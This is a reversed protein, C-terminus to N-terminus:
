PADTRPRGCRSSPRCVISSLRHVVSSPHHVIAVRTTGDDDDSETSCSCGPQCRSCGSIPHIFPLPNGSGGVAHTLVGSRAASNHDMCTGLRPQVSTLTADHSMRFVQKQRPNGVIKDEIAQANRPVPLDGPEDCPVTRTRVHSPYPASLRVASPVPTWPSGAVVIETASELLM